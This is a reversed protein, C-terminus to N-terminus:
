TSVHNSRDLDVIADILLLLLAYKICTQLIYGKNCGDSATIIAFSTSSSKSSSMNNASTSSNVTMPLVMEENKEKKKATVTGVAPVVTTSYLMSGRTVLVVALVTGADVETGFLLMSVFPLAVLELSGAITKRVSDLHRLFFGTSMGTASGLLIVCVSMPDSVIISFEEVFSPSLSLHHSLTSPTSLPTSLPTTSSSSRHQLLLMIVVNGAMCNVYMCCNQLNVSVHKFGKLWFEMCIGAITAFLMQVFIFGLVVLFGSGDGSGGSGVESGAGGVEAQLRSDDWKAYGKVACGLTIMGLADWKHLPIVKHFVLRWLVATLLIRMNALLMATAPDTLSLVVYQLNNSAAYLLAPLMYRIFIPRLETLTVTSTARDNKLYLLISALLKTFEILTAVASFNYTPRQKRFGYVLLTYSVWLTIYGWFVVNKLVTDLGLFVM